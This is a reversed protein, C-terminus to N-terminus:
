DVSYLASLDLSRSFPAPPVETMTRACAPFSFLRPPVAFPTFGLALKGEGMKPPSVVQYSSPGKPNIEHRTELLTLGDYRASLHPDAAM